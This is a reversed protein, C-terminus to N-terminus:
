LKTPALAKEVSRFHAVASPLKTAMVTYLVDLLTIQALRSNLGIVRYQTETSTTYLQIDSMRNLPSPEIDTLSIVTAKNEKALQAAEIVSRSSGSQSIAFICDRSDVCAAVIAQIHSDSIAQAEIGLRLLKHYFDFAIAHSNGLGFILVRRANLIADASKDVAEAQVTKHTLDLSYLAGQFVKDIITKTSDGPRDRICM